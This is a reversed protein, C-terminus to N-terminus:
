SPPPPGAPSTAGDGSSVPTRRWPVRVYAVLSRAEMLREDAALGAGRPLTSTRIGFWQNRGASDDHARRTEGPDARPAKPDVVLTQASQIAEIVMSAGTSASGLSRAFAWIIASYRSSVLGRVSFDGGRPGERHRQALSLPMNVNPGVVPGVVSATKSSASGAPAPGAARRHEPQGRAVAGLRQMPTRARAKSSPARAGRAADSFRYPVLLHAFPPSPAARGKNM